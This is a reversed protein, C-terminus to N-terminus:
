VHSLQHQVSQLGASYLGAGVAAPSDAIHGDVVIHLVVVDGDVLRVGGGNVVRAGGTAGGVSAPGDHLQALLQVHAVQLQVVVGGIHEATGGAGPEILVALDAGIRIIGIRGVGGL